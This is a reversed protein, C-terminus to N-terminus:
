RNKHITRIMLWIVGFARAQMRKEFFISFEDYNVASEVCKDFLIGGERYTPKEFVVELLNDLLCNFFVFESFLFNAAEYSLYPFQRSFVLADWSSAHM